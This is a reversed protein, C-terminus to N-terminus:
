RGAEPGPPETPDVGRSLSEWLTATDAVPQPQGGGAREYRASMAPWRAGRWAVAIGAALVALAGMAALPRWPFGTMVVHAAASVGPAGGPVAGAAGGGASGGPGGGATVSGAQSVGAGHAAALVAAAGVHATVALAALAGAAALLVGVLRRALGRTAIVAALAALSVVALAGTVPVLDQGTVPVSGSPLPPAAATVVRAWEQRAALFVLAAGAAALGLVLAYERAASGPRPAAAGTVPGGNAHRGDVPAGTVPGGEVPAGEVPAGEVPGGTV